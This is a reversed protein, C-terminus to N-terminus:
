SAGQRRERKRERRRGRRRGRRRRRCRARLAVQAEEKQVHDGGRAGLPARAAAYAAAQASSDQAEGSRGIVVFDMNEEEDYKSLFSKVGTRQERELEDHITKKKANKKALEEKTEVAVKVNELVDEADDDLVGADKLTLIMGEGGEELDVKHAIKLGALDDSTYAKGGAASKSKPAAAAAVAAAEKKTRSSKV